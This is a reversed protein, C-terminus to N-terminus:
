HAIFALVALLYLSLVSLGILGLVLGAVAMGYGTLAGRSRNIQGMATGGFIVALLSGLGCLWILGLVLSAVALGSTRPIVDAADPRHLAPEPTSSRVPAQVSEETRITVPAPFIAPVDRCPVWDAMGNTWIKTEPQIEGQDLLRRLEAAPFPGVPTTGAAYYWLSGADLPPVLAEELTLDIIEGSPEAMPVRAPGGPAAPSREPPFIATLSAASMWTQRDTSIEYFRAFRGRRRLTDLQALDFPGGVQGRARIYWKTENM